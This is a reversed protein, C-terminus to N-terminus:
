NEYDHVGRSFVTTTVLILIIKVLITIYISSHAHTNIDFLLIPNLNICINAFFMACFIYLVFPLIHILYKNKTFRSIALGIIAFIGGCIAANIAYLICYFLPSRTFIQKGHTVWTDISYESLNGGKSILCLILWVLVPIGISVCGSISCSLIKAIIYKRKSVRMFVYNIYGSKCEDAYATSYPVCSIIPYLIVLISSTGCCLSVFFSYAFDSNSSLFLPEYGGIFLCSFTIIIAILMNLNFISNKICSRIYM